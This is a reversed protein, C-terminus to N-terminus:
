IIIHKIRSKLQNLTAVPVYLKTDTIAFTTEQDAAANFSIVCKTSWSLMLNNECSIIPM